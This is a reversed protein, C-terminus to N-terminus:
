ARAHSVQRLNNGRRPRQSCESFQVRGLGNEAQAPADTLLVYNSDSVPRQVKYDFLQYDARTIPSRCELIVRIGAVPNTSFGSMYSSTTM